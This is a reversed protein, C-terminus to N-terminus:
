KAIRTGIRVAPFIDRHHRFLRRPFDVAVWAVLEEIDRDFCRLSDGKM